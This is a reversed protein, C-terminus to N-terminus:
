NRRATGGARTKCKWGRWLTRRWKYLKRQCRKETTGTLTYKGIFWLCYVIKVQMLDTTMGIKLCKLYRCHICNKKEDSVQCKKLGTRCRKLGKAAKRQATRRFFARCSYCTHAVFNPPKFLDKCSIGLWVKGGFHLHDPAPASCVGCILNLPAPPRKLM